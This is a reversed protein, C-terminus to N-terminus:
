GKLIGAYSDTVKGGNYMDKVQKATLGVDTFYSIEDMYYKFYQTNKRKGLQIGVTNNGAAAWGGGGDNNELVAEGDQYIMISEEAGEDYVFVCHHWADDNAAATAHKWSDDDVTVFNISLPKGVGAAISTYVWGRRWGPDSNENETVLLYLNSATTKFWIAFSLKTATPKLAADYPIVVANDTGNFYLSQSSGNPLEATNWTKAVGAVESVTGRLVGDLGLGRKSKDPLTTADDDIGEVRWYATPVTNAWRQAKGGQSAGFGSKGLKNGARLRGGIGKRFSM